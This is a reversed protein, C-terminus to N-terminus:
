SAAAHEAGKRQNIQFKVTYTNQNLPSLFIVKRLRILALFTAGSRMPLTVERHARRDMLRDTPRNTMIEYFLIALIHAWTQGRETPRNTPQYTM